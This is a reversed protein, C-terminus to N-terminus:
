NEGRKEEQEEERVENEGTRKGGKIEEKEEKM